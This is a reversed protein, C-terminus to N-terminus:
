WALGYAERRFDSGVMRAGSPLIRIAQAGGFEASPPQVRVDHGIATLSDRIATGIGPELGLRLGYSRWRPAEVAQQPTMGFLLANNIVQVVTQPQGDGGPTGVVMALSRDANLVMAPSLTHYPRKGPELINPHAAVLSFLSGRNHLVIGTGPVMRGSGFSAFNSQIWSVANGDRDVVCLYVTDGDGDRPLAETPPPTSSRASIRGRLERAHEPSLLRQVPVNARTPDAIFRDRDAYALKASEALLHVYGASNHGMARVDSLGAINLQQLMALGQTSPPFALVRYGNYETEIPEQWASRHRALDAATLLGGEQEIFGLIRRAVPGEYFTRAGSDAIARLTAALDPQILITGAAPSKGNVLFTRALAADAALTRRAGAIDTSLRNSVPFGRAAYGIAPALATGLSITGFRTLADEWMRVAGPVSVSLLGDSPIKRLGRAAFFAPTARSGAAGSGNLAYVKGTAAERYLMFGDGGPGNMHPRVVSLVGAMTVAADVANGGRRLIEAGAATALAHDSSLAAEWGAVDPRMPMTQAATPQGFPLLMLFPLVFSTRM